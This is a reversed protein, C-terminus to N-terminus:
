CSGAKLHPQASRGAAFAHVEAAISLAIGEPTVAGIDLGVPGHLRGRLQDEHPGIAALLKARRARPGLLGVYQINSPAIARLYTADTALHHSMIIAAFYNCLDVRAELEDAPGFIVTGMPFRAPNAYASRHDFVTVPFRLINLQTVLPEADAGAGCILIRPPPTVVQIWAEHIEETEGWRVTHSCCTGIAMQCAYELPKALPGDVVGAWVRTGLAGIPGIHEIALAVTRGTSTLKGAAALSNAATSGPHGPELLIRMAGECGAGIGFILDDDGRMDYTVVHAIGSSLVQHAHERLDEELCGGSLLGTIRGDGEILMRAGTKRYTSGATSVITAVVAPGSLESYREILTELSTDLRLTSM